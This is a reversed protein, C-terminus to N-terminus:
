KKIEETLASGHTFSNLKDYFDMVLGAPIEANVILDGNSLWEESKKFEAVAGYAKGTHMAPITIKISKTEVKIPIIRQIQELIETIQSEIPKNKVNVQAEKLVTMIRDATYPRGDPNVANKVLFDIIQKYKQNQQKHLYETPMVLEGSKIIKGAVELVDASGFEVELVDASAHEGSKINHFIAETLVASNINAGAEGQKFKLAEDLDVLIEFTKGTKKIRATTQM